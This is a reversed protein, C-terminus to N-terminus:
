QTVVGYGPDQAGGPRYGDFRCFPQGDPGTTLPEGDYPCSYLTAQRYVPDGYDHLVGLLAQWSM